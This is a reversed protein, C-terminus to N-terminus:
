GAGERIQHIAEEVWSRKESSLADAAELLITLSSEEGMVVIGDLAAKSIEDDASGLLTALFPLAERTRYESVVRILAVAVSRESQLEFAHVVHPLADPGLEVLSHWANDASDGSLEDVYSDVRETLDNRRM